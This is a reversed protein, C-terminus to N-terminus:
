AYARLRLASLDRNVLVQQFLARRHVHREIGAVVLDVNRQTAIRGQVLVDVGFLAALDNDVFHHLRLLGNEYIKRESLEVVFCYQAGSHWSGRLLPVYFVPVTPGPALPILFHTGSPVACARM